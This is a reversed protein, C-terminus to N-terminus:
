SSKYINRFVRLFNEGLIGRIEDDTYGRSVLGRTFNSLRSIDELGEAYPITTADIPLDARTVRRTQIIMDQCFDTYDPGIGLRGPEAL